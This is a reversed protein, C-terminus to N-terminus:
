EGYWKRAFWNGITGFKLPRYKKELKDLHARRRATEAEIREFSADFPLTYLPHPQGQKNLGPRQYKYEPGRYFAKDESIGVDLLDYPRESWRKKNRVLEELDGLAVNSARGQPKSTWRNEYTDILEDNIKQNLRELKKERPTKEWPNTAYEWDKWPNATYDQDGAYAGVALVGIL